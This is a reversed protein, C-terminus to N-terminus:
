NNVRNKEIELVDYQMKNFNWVQLYEKAIRGNNGNGSHNAERTHIAGHCSRCLVELNSIDNNMKEGIRLKNIGNRDKHHITLDNLEGCKTCKWDMKELLDLGYRKKTSLSFIRVM